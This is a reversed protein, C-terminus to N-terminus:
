SIPSIANGILFLLGSIAFSLAYLIAALIVLRVVFRKFGSSIHIKDVVWLGVGLAVLTVTFFEIGRLIEFFAMTNNINM